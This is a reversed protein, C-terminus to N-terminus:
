ERIEDTPQFRIAGVNFDGLMSTFRLHFDTQAQLIYDGRIQRQQEMSEARFNVCYEATIKHPGGSLLEPTPHPAENREAWLTITYDILGSDFVIDNKFKKRFFVMGTALSLLVLLAVVLTYDSM